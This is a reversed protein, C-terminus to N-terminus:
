SNTLLGELFLLSPRASFCQKGSLPRKLELLILQVERTWFIDKYMNLEIQVLRKGSSHEEIEQDLSFFFLFVLLIKSILLLFCEDPDM